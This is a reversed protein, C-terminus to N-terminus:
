MENDRKTEQKKCGDILQFSISAVLMFGISGQEEHSLFVERLCVFIFSLAVKM